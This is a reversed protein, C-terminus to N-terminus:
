SPKAVLSEGVKEIARRLATIEAIAQQGAGRSGRKSSWAQMIQEWRQADAPAPMGLLKRVQILSVESERALSQAESQYHDLLLTDVEQATMIPSVKEALKGMNRYSGQLKFPPETRYEEPCSASAIYSRNVAVVADRIRMLHRTVSVAEEMDSASHTGEWTAEVSPDAIQRLLTSFDKRFRGFVRALTPQVMLCNELYSDQFASAHTGALDGLNFTDARNALMDPVRFAEGSETYPNGAMVVAVRRGRLDWTRSQRRFTGDMRRQGDCLSIFKQLFEPHCHQIDDVLIVVNDGMELALSLRELEQKAAGDKAQAPDIGTTSRGLSPGNIKVYMLGLAECLYEVLTTKGYGPPSILLLLGMRDSRKDDGMSGIQKALNDGILPLYVEDALRNRVFSSLVKPRFGDIGLERRADDLVRRRCKQFSAVRPVVSGHHERMRRAWDSFRFVTKGEPSLPHGARLSLEQPVEAALWRMDPSEGCCLYAAVEELVEGSAASAAALWDSALRHQQGMQGKLAEMGARFGEMAGADVLRKTFHAHAEQANASLCPFSGTELAEAIFAAVEQSTAGDGIGRPKVFGAVAEECSRLAVTRVASQRSEMGFAAQMRSAAVFASEVRARWSEDVIASWFELAIARANGGFRMPGLSKWAQIAARLVVLGDEDHVGRQWAELPSREMAELLRARLGEETECALRTLSGRGQSESLDWVRWALVEGRQAVPSEGSTEVEWVDRLSQIEPDEIRQRYRTGSVHIELGESGALAVIEPRTKQIAFVHRGLRLGQGGEVMLESRDRIRRLSDELLARLRGALDEAGGADGLGRLQESLNRVKEVLPDSAFFARLEAPDAMAEARQALGKLVREGSQRIQDCKRGRAELLALRRGDLSAVMEERIDALSDLFEPVESFRGELEELRSLLRIQSAQCDEPNTALDLASTLAQSLLRKQASFEAVGDQRGLATKRQRLGNRVQNQEALIVSIRESIETSQVADVEKLGGITELLFELQRAQADLKEELAVAERSQRLTELSGSVEVSGKRWPELAGPALLLGTCQVGVRDQAAQISREVLVCAERDSFSMEMIELIRGRGARLRKMSDLCDGLGSFAPIEVLDAELSSELEQCAQQAAQRSREVKAYEGIASEATAAVESLIRGIEGSETEKIWFHADALNRAERVLDGFLGAFGADKGLMKALHRGQALFRVCDQNGIRELWPDAGASQAPPPGFPSKWVQIAHSAQPEPQARFAFLDGSPVLSWGHCSIPQQTKQDTVSYSLLTYEGTDEKYFSFLHDEGTTSVTRRDYHFDPPVTEFRRYEGSQLAWGDPLLIGQQQPLIVCSHGLSDMRVAQRTKCFYLFHRAQQEQFPRIRLAVIEGLVAYHIEADDLTQDRHEVPESLIGKGTKTNNEVKITLDGGLTEVFVRDEISIHPHLGERHHERRTRLWEFEHRPPPQIESAARDGEYALGDSAVKWKFAKLDDTRTGVQFVMYLFGRNRVFRTFQTQRYYRYLNRFDELFRADSLLEVGEDRFTGDENGKYFSFVDSITTETKLGFQVNYGLLLSGGFQTLDRPICQNPTSIHVTRDLKWDVAGFLGKRRQDFTSLFSELDSRQRDLRARLVDWNGGVAAAAPEPAKAATDSM